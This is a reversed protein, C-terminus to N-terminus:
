SGGRLDGAVNVQPGGINVHLAPLQLQRVQALAKIASLYRHHARDRDRGFPEEHGFFLRRGRGSAGPL